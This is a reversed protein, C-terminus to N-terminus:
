ASAHVICLVALTLNVAGMFLHSWFDDKVGKSPRFMGGKGEPAVSGPPAGGFKVVQDPLPGGYALSAAVFGVIVQLFSICFHVPARHVLPVMFIVIWLGAGLTLQFCGWTRMQSTLWFALHKVVEDECKAMADYAAQPSKIGKEALLPDLLHFMACNTAGDKVLGFAMTYTLASIGIFVHSFWLLVSGATNEGCTALTCDGTGITTANESASAFGIFMLLLAFTTTSPM